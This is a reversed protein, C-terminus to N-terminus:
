RRAPTLITPDDVVRSGSRILLPQPQCEFSRQAAWLVLADNEKIGPVLPRLTAVQFGVAAVPQRVQLRSSARQIAEIPLVSICNSRARIGTHSCGTKTTPEGREPVLM